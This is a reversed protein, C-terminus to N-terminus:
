NLPRDYALSEDFGELWGNDDGVGHEPSESFLGTAKDYHISTSGMGGQWAFRCKWVHFVTENPKRQITVGFDARNFFHAAGSISYGTPVWDPGQNMPKAPHAILFFTVETRQAFMKFQSLMENIAEPDMGGDKKQGLKVFNFPDVVVAKVGNRRVAAEFREILSDVTPMIGDNTLFSIRENLWGFHELMEDESMRPTPGDGFPKRARMALLKALHLEPPNEFSAYAVRWNHEALANMLMADIVQSNHTPILGDTILFEHSPHDVSICRVPVSPVPKVDVIQQWSHWVKSRNTTETKAAKRSLRFTPLINACYVRYKPGCDKGYLMARGEYMKPRLSLSAMLRFVGDALDKRVSCFESTGGQPYGDSDMLGQLLALRYPADARFCEEPIHKNNKLGADALQRALALIGWGYEDSHKRVEYGDARIFEIVELDPTTIGGDGSNGDGLWAGLTYPPVPFTWAGGTLPQINAVAHNFRGAKTILSDAIQQTTKASPFTRKHQQDTGRPMTDTRGARKKNAVNQSLRAKECRTVWLHDADAIVKMGDKFTVEYCPRGHMVDFAHTVTTLSGDPAFVKDGAKIAGMTSWGESTLIKTDLSLAKGSGPTGTVIVLNGPNLTFLEDVNSWGTSAGRPLGERYLSQVKDLFISPDALGEVPWRTAAAKCAALGEKGHKQLTDNADKCGPPFSIRWAKLKGVRRAIENATAEGPGDMDVAIFVNPAAQILEDHHSLWKLRAADDSIGEAIAGSPLSVAQLGIEYFSACDLEGETLLLDAGITLRDAGFLTQASGDQTFDKGEISRWKIATVRGGHHYPFGVADLEKGARKFFRRGSLLGLQKATAESIGRGELYAVGNFDLEDGTYTKLPVVTM